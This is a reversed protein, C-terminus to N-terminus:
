NGNQTTVSVAGSGVQASTNVNTQGGSVNTVPTSYDNYTSRADTTSPANVVSPALTINNQTLNAGTFPVLAQADWYSPDVPAGGAATTPHWVTTEVAGAPIAFAGALLMAAALLTGKRALSRTM